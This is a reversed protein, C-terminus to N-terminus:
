AVRRTGPAAIAPPNLTRATRDIQRSLGARKGIIPGQGPDTGKTMYQCVSDGPFRSRPSPHRHPQLLAATGDGTAANDHVWSPLLAKYGALLQPPVHIGIQAHVGKALNAVEHPPNELVWALFNPIGHQLCFDTHRRKLHDMKARVYECQEELSGRKPYGATRSWLVTLHNTMPSGMQDAYHFAEGINQTQEPKLTTSLVKKMPGMYQNDIVVPKEPKSAAISQAM